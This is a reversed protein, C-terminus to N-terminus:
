GREDGVMAAFVAMFDGSRRGIRVRMARQGPEWVFVDAHARGVATVHVVGSPKIVRIEPRM